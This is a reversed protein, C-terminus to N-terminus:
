STRILAIHGNNKNSQLGFQFALVNRNVRGGEGCQITHFDTRCNCRMVHHCYASTANKRSEMAFVSFLGSAHLPAPLWSENPYKLHRLKFLVM